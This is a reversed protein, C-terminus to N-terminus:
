HGKALIIGEFELWWRRPTRLLTLRGWGRALLLFVGSCGFLYLGRRGFGELRLLPSRGIRGIFGAGDIQFRHQVRSLRQARTVLEDLFVTGGVSRLLRLHDGLILDAHPAGHFHRALFCLARGVPRLPASSANVGLSGRLDCIKARWSI